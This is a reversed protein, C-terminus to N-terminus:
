SKYPFVDGDLAPFYSLSSNSVFIREEWDADFINSAHEEKLKFYNM